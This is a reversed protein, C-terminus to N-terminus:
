ARLLRLTMPVACAAPALSLAGRSRSRPCRRRTTRRASRQLGPRAASPCAAPPRPDHAASARLGPDEAPSDDSCRSVPQVDIGISSLCPWPGVPRRTLHAPLRSRAFWEAGPRRSTRRSRPKASPDGRAAQLDRVRSCGTGGGPGATAARLGPRGCPLGGLASLPERGRFVRRDISTCPGARLRAGGHRRVLRAHRRRGPNARRARRPVSVVERPFVTRPSAARTVSPRGSRDPRITLIHRCIPM